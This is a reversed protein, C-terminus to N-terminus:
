DLLMLFATDSARVEKIFGAIMKSQLKYLMRLEIDENMVAESLNQDELQQIRAETLEKAAIAMKKQASGVLQSVRAASIKLERQIEGNSMSRYGYGGQDEPKSWESHVIVDNGNADKSVSIETDSPTGKGPYEEMGLRRIIVMKQQTSLQAAEITKTLLDHESVEMSPDIIRAVPDTKSDEYDGGTAKTDLGGVDRTGTGAIATPRDTSGCKPCTFDLPIESERMPRKRGNYKTYLPEGCARCQMSKFTNHSTRITDSTKAGAIRDEKEAGQLEKGKKKIDARINKLQKIDGANMAQLIDNAVAQLEGMLDDYKNGKTALLAPRTSGTHPSRGISKSPNNPDPTILDNIAKVGDQLTMPPLSQGVVKAIVNHFDKLLGRAVRYKAEGVGTSVTKRMWGYAYTTFGVDFRGQDEEIARVIGMLCMQYADDKDYAAKQFRNTSYRNALDHIVNNMATIVEDFSWPIVRGHKDVPGIPQKTSIHRPPEYDGPGDRTVKMSGAIPNTIGKARMEREAEVIKKYDEWGTCPGATVKLTTYNRETYDNEESEALASELIAKINM